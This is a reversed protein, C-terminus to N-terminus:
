IRYKDILDELEQHFADVDRGTICVLLTGDQTRVTTDMPPEGPYVESTYTLETAGVSKKRILTRM